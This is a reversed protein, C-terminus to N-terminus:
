NSAKWWFPLTCYTFFFWGGFQVGFYTQSDVTLKVHDYGSKDDCSVMDTDKQILKHVHKLNELQVPLNRTLLNLYREDHCLRSKTPEITLSMIVNPPSCFGFKGFLRM